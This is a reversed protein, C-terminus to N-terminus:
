HEQVEALYLPAGHFSETLRIPSFLPVDNRFSRVSTGLSPLMSYGRQPFLPLTEILAPYLDVDISGRLQSVSAWIYRSGRLVNKFRTPLKPPHKARKKDSTYNGNGFRGTLGGRCATPIQITLQAM